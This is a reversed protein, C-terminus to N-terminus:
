FNMTCSFYNTKTAPDYRYTFQDSAKTIILLGFHESSESLLAPMEITPLMESFFMASETDLIKIKLSDMGNHYIQFDAQASSNLPWVLLMETEPDTLALTKGQDARQIHIQAESIKISLVCNATGCHKIANTLLETVMWKIKAMAFSDPSTKKIDRIQDECAQLVDSIEEIKNNFVFEIKGSYDEM